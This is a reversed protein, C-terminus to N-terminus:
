NTLDLSWNRVQDVKHVVRQPELPRHNPEQIFRRLLDLFQQPTRVEREREILNSLGSFYQDIDEHSHGSELFRVELRAVRRSGVLVGALRCIANNKNERGCNDCQLLIECQRLDTTRSVKELAHTILEATWSSDKKTYPESCALILNHGHTIVATLDLSPRVFSGFAKTGCVASRPYRYKSKDMGDCILAVTTLGNPQVGMRSKARGQWYIVRDQYQRDLHLQYEKMQFARLRKDSGLRKLIMKHKSCTTCSSHHSVRRIAMKTFDRGWVENESSM